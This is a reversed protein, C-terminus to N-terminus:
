GLLFDKFRKPLLQSPIGTLALYRKLFASKTTTMTELLGWRAFQEASMNIEDLPDPREIAREIISAAELRAQGDLASQAWRRVRQRFLSPPNAHTLPERAEFVSESAQKKYMIGQHLMVDAGFHAVRQDAELFLWGASSMAKERNLAWVTGGITKTQKCIAEIRKAVHTQGGISDILLVLNPATKGHLHGILAPVEELQDRDLRNPRNLGPSGFNPFEERGIVYPDGDRYAMVPFDRSEHIHGEILITVSNRTEVM